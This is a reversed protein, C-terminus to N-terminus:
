NLRTVEMPTFADRVRPIFLYVVVGIEIILLLADYWYGVGNLLRMFGFFGEWVMAVIGIWRGWSKLRWAGYVFLLLLTPTDLTVIGHLALAIDGRGSGSLGEVLFYISRLLFFIGLVAAFILIITLGRPRTKPGSEEPPVDLKKQYAEEARKFFSNM